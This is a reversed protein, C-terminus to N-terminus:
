ERLKNILAKLMEYAEDSMRLDEPGNYTKIGLLYDTSVNLLESLVVLNRLKPEIEGLEWRAVAGRSVGIRDALEEQTLGAQIRAAKIREGLYLM